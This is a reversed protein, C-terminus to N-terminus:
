HADDDHKVPVEVEFRHWEGNMYYGQDDTQDDRWHYRTDKLHATRWDDAYFVVGLTTPYTTYRKTVHWCEDYRTCVVDASATSTTAVLTGASLAVGLAGTMLLSSIRM